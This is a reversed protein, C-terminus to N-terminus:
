KSFILTDTRKCIGASCISLYIRGDMDGLFTKSFADAESNMERYIHNFSLSNFKNMLRRSDNLWHFLELSLVQYKELAWNIIVQSDDVVHIDKM